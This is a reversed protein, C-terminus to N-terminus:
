EAYGGANRGTPILALVDYPQAAAMTSRIHGIDIKQSERYFGNGVIEQIKRQHAYKMNENLSGVISQYAKKGSEVIKTAEAETNGAKVHAQVASPSALRSYYTGIKDLKNDKIDDGVEKLMKGLESARTASPHASIKDAIEGFNDRDSLAHMSMMRYHSDELSGTITKLYPGFFSKLHELTDEFGQRTLSNSQLASQLGHMLMQLEEKEDQYPITSYIGQLSNLLGRGLVNPNFTPHTGMRQYNKVLLSGQQYPQFNSTGLVEELKVKNAPAAVAPVAPPVGGSAKYSQKVM